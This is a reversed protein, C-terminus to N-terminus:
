NMQFIHGSNSSPRDVEEFAKPFDDGNQQAIFPLVPITSVDSDIRLMTLLQCAAADDNAMFLIILRPKLQKVRCYARTVSEVFFVDRDDGDSLLHNLLEARGADGSVAVVVPRSPGTM